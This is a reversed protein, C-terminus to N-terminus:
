ISHRVTNQNEKSGHIVFHMAVRETCRVIALGKSHLVDRELEEM